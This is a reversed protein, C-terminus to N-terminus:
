FVPFLLEVTELAQNKLIPRSYQPTKYSEVMAARLEGSDVPEWAPLWLEHLNGLSSTSLLPNGVKLKGM